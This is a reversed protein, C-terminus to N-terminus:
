YSLPKPYKDKSSYILCSYLLGISDYYYILDAVRVKHMAIIWKFFRADEPNYEIM